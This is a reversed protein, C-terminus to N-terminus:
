SLDPHRHPALNVPPLGSFLSWFWVIGRISFLSSLIFFFSLKVKPRKGRNCWPYPVHTGCPDEPPTVLVRLHGKGVEAQQLPSKSSRVWLWPASPLCGSSLCMFSLQAQCFVDTSVCFQVFAACIITRTSRPTMLAVSALSTLPESTGGACLGAGLAAPSGYFNDHPGARSTLLGRRPRAHRGAM